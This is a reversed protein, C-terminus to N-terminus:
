DFSRHIRRVHFSTPLLKSSSLDKNLCYEQFAGAVEDIQEGKKKGENISQLGRCVGEMKEKLETQWPREIYKHFPIYPMKVKHKEECAASNCPVLMAAAVRLAYKM